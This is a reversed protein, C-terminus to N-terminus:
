PWRGRYGNAFAWATVYIQSTADWISAGSYGARASVLTWFSETYQFLGKYSGGDSDSNGNSERIMLTCVSNPDVNNKQSAKIVIDNYKCRVTIVPKTGIYIIEDIAENTIKTDILTRKVEVGDERIVEYIKDKTGLAGKQGVREKGKDLDPDDKKVTKFYIKESETIKTKAVRTIKIIMKDILETDVSYNVKDELGLEINKELLLEGVNKVWSRVEIKKKGDIIQYSPARKLVIKGGINLNIDPFISIQDEVFPAAGLQNTIERIDKSNSGGKYTSGISGDPLVEEIYYPQTLAINQQDAFDAKSKFAILSPIILFASVIVTLRFKLSLRQM